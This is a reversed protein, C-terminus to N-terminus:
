HAGATVFSAGRQKFCRASFLVAQDALGTGAVLNLDDIVAYAQPPTKAHVMCFLNYPWDPPRRPRRYCLTVAPNRALCPAVADAIEDAINWVAMANAAYGLRRHHVVCGFRSVIGHAILRQLRVLVESEAVGLHRAVDRFPRDVLPLGDEIAALLRRDSHDARLGSFPRPVRERRSGTLPFGLDIRYARQLPLDLVPLGTREEIRELTASVAAPESGAVVFWLNIRHMREYNHNVLPERSVIRAVEDLREPPVRMAALTSAGATHPRVVAGIRSLVGRRRLRRFAAITSAEDLGLERGAEAFPREALPFDHQWRDLLALEAGARTTM